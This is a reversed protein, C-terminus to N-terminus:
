PRIENQLERILPLLTQLYFEETLVGGIEYATTGKGDTLFLSPVRWANLSKTWEAKDDLAIADFPNEIKQFLGDLQQATDRVAIGVFPIDKRKALKALISLELRCPKCWSGFFVIMVPRNPLILDGARGYLPMRIQPIDLARPIVSAETSFDLRVLNLFNSLLLSLLLLVAFGYIKM